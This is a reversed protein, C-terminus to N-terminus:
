VMHLNDKFAQHLVWKTATDLAHRNLFLQRESHDTLAQTTSEHLSEDLCILATKDNGDLEYLANHPFATLRTLTFFVGYGNKLAIETIIDPLSLEPLLPTPQVGKALYADLVAKNEADSKTIDHVFNNQPFHSDTLRYVRFGADLEAQPHQTRIKDGARKVREICLSSITKYGAKYAEMNEETYEPVQVLIFRRNGGDEANLQMVAHATTGSGAFFDFIIDNDKANSITLLHSILSYPKPFDFFRGDLLEELDLSAQQNSGYATDWFDNAIQGESEHLYIKGYPQEDGKSTWLIKNEADLEKFQEEKIMWPGNLINGNKTKVEYFHRGRTKDLLIARRFLGKEDKYSYEKKAKATLKVKSLQMHTQNKAYVLVYEKVRAIQGINAQNDSKRWAIQIIFNEEGFVEDCLLRLHHVENDDISIFIVGDDRLLNRALLLRAQMMNLWLSHRRGHSEPLATLKVGDKVTGNRQWYAKKGEMFNDPYIFDNGTNYPPDIYICKVQEFYTTQLLKLVELNDGEIIMNQTADFAVSRDKDAILTAKSATFATRKSQQKGAWEFRFREAGAAADPQTMSHLATTDLNGDADFLDPMLARIQQLREQMLDPSTLAAEQITLNETETNM